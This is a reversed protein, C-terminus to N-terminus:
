TKDENNARVHASYDKIEVKQPEYIKDVDVTIRFLAEFAMDLHKVLKM